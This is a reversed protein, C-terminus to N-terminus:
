KKRLTKGGEHAMVKRFILMRVEQELEDKWGQSIQTVEQRYRKANEMVDKTVAAQNLLGSMAHLGKVEALDNHM